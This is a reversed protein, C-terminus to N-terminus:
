IPSIESKLKLKRSTQRYTQLSDATKPFSCDIFLLFFNLHNGINFVANRSTSARIQTIGRIWTAATEKLELAAAEAPVTDSHGLSNVKFEYEKTAFRGAKQREM